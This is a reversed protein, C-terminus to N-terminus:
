IEFNSQLVPAAQEAARSAVPMKGNDLDADSAPADGAAAVASTVAELLTSKKVPKSVHLDCGADKARRVDEELAAATLAIIATRPQGKGTGM